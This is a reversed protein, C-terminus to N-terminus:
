LKAVSKVWYIVHFVLKKQIKKIVTSENQNFV